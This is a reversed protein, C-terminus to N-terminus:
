LRRHVANGAKCDGDNCNHSGVGVARGEVHDMNDAGSTFILERAFQTVYPRGKVIRDGYRIEGVLYQHVIGQEIALIDTQSLRCGAMEVVQKPAIVTRVPHSEDWKFLSFPETPLKVYLAKPCSNVMQFRETQSSGSNGILLNINVFREKRQASPLQFLGVGEIAENTMRLVPDAIYVVPRQEIRMEVLQSSATTASEQAATASHSASGILRATNDAQTNMASAFNATAIALNHADAGAGEMQALQGHVIAVNAITAVAIVVTFAAMITEPWRLSKKVARDIDQALRQEGGDGGEQDTM